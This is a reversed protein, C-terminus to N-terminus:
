VKLGLFPEKPSLTRGGEWELHLVGPLFFGMIEEEKGTNKDRVVIALRENEEVEIERISVSGQVGKKELWGFEGHQGIMKM